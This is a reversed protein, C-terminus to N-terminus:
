HYQRWKGERLPADKRPPHQLGESRRCGIKGGIRFGGGGNKLSIAGPGYWPGEMCKGVWEGGLGEHKGRLTTRGAGPTKGGSQARLNSGPEVKGNAGSFSLYQGRMRM